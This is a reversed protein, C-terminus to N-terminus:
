KSEIEDENGTLELIKDHFDTIHPTQDGFLEKNCSYFANENHEYETPLGHDSMFIITWEESFREIIDGAINDLRNYDQQYNGLGLDQVADPDHLHLMVFDWFEFSLNYFDNIRSDTLKKSYERVDKRGGVLSIEHPMGLQWRLDPNYAPVFLPKSLEIKDFISRIKLDEKTYKHSPSDIRYVKSFFKKSIQNLRFLGRINDELFSPIVGKSTLTKKHERKLKVVGHDDYTEGTIFSAFLESTSRYNIGKSNEIRGFEKQIVNQLDYDEILEYDMGDFAIVM